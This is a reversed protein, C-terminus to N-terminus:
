VFTNSHLTYTVVPKLATEARVCIKDDIYSSHCKEDLVLMKLIQLHNSSFFASFINLYLIPPPFKLLLKIFKSSTLCLTFIIKHVYINLRLLV